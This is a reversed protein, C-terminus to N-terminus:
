MGSGIVWSRPILLRPDRVLEPDKEPGDSRVANWLAFLMQGLVAEPPDDPAASLSPSPSLASPKASLSFFTSLLLLPIDVPNRHLMNGRLTGLGEPVVTLEERLTLSGAVASISSHKKSASDQSAGVRLERPYSSISPMISQGSDTGPLPSYRVSYVYEMREKITDNVIRISYLKRISV